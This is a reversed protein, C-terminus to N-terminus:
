PNFLWVYPRARGARERAGSRFINCSTACGSGVLFRLDCVFSWLEHGIACQIDIFLGCFLDTHAIHESQVRVHNDFPEGIAAFPHRFQVAGILEVRVGCQRDERAERVITAHHDLAIVPGAFRGMDFLDSRAEVPGGNADVEVAVDAPDVQDALVRDLQAIAHLHGLKMLADQGPRQAIGYCNDEVFVVRPAGIHHEDNLPNQFHVALQGQKVLVLHDGRM